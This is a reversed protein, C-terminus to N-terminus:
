KCLGLSFCIAVHIHSNLASYSLTPFNNVIEYKMAHLLKVYKAANKCIVPVLQSSRVM